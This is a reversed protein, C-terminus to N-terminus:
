QEFAVEKFNGKLSYNKPQTNQYNKSPFPQFGGDKRAEVEHVKIKYEGGDATGSKFQKSSSVKSIEITDPTLRYHHHSLLSYNTTAFSNTYKSHHKASPSPSLSRV